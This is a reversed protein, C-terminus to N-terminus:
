IDTPIHIKKNTSQLFRFNNSALTPTEYLGALQFNARAHANAVALSLFDKFVLDIRKEVNLESM